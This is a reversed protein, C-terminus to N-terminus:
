YVSHRQYVPNTPRATVRKSYRAISVQLKSTFIDPNKVTKIAWIENIAAITNLNLSNPFQCSFQM